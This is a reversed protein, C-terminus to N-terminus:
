PSTGAKRRKDSAVLIHSLVEYQGAEFGPTILEVTRPMRQKAITLCSAKAMGLCAWQALAESKKLSPKEGHKSLNRERRRAM